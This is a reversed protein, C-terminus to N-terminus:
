AVGGLFFEAAAEIQRKAARDQSWSRLDKGNPPYIVPANGLRSQLLEASRRGAPDPDGIVVAPKGALAEVARDLCGSASPLGVALFGMSLAAAADTPGECVVCFPAPGIRDGFTAPVFLGGRSGKRAFKRGSPSRLRMGVVRPEGRVIWWMPWVWLDRGPHYSVWQQRLALTSVGLDKAFRTILRFDTSAAMGRAQDTWDPPLEVRVTRERPPTWDPSDAVRHLFGGRDTQKFSGDPVRFCMVVAGDPSVICSQRECVPCPEEKTTKM